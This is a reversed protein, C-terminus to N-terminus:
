SPTYFMRAIFSIGGGFLTKDEKKPNNPDRYNIEGPFFGIPWCDMATGGLTRDTLIADIVDAMVPIIDTFWDQPAYERIVLIVSFHIM